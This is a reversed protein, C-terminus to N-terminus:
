FILDIKLKVSRELAAPHLNTRKLGVDLCQALDKLDRISEFAMTFDPIDNEIIFRKLATDKMFGRSIENKWIKEGIKRLWKAAKDVESVDELTEKLVAKAADAM